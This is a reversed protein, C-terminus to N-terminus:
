QKVLGKGPVYIYDAKGESTGSARPNIISGLNQRNEDIGGQVGRPGSKFNNLLETEAARVNEFSRSGHIGANAMAFNHVANGLAVLDPDDSGMMQDVSSLRGAGPGLLDKGRRNVIDQIQDLNNSAIIALSRRNKDATTMPPEAGAPVAPVKSLGVPADKVEGTKNNLLVSKTGGNGDPMSALSYTGTSMSVSPPKEGTEGLDKVTTGTNKDVIVTHQKGNVELQTLDTQQKPSGQYVTTAKPTGDAGTTVAVVNGDATSVYHPPVAKPAM